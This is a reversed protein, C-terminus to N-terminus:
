KIFIVLQKNILYRLQETLKNKLLAKDGIEFEKILQKLLSSFKTEKLLYKLIIGCFKTPHYEEVRDNGAWLVAQYEAPGSDTNEFWIAQESESWDWETKRIHVHGSLQFKLKEFDATPIENLMLLQDKFFSRKQERYINYDPTIEMMVKQFEFQFIDSLRDKLNEPVAKVVQELYKSLSIIDNSREGYWLDGLGVQAHELLSLTRRYFKGYIRQKIENIQLGQKKYPRSPATILPLLISDTQDNLLQLYMYGIGATGLLLSPDDKDTFWASAYKGINDKHELSKEALFYAHVKLEPRNFTKAGTLFLEMWSGAGTSITFNSFEAKGYIDDQTLKLCQKAKDLLYNKELQRGANLRVLGMGTIGHAWANVDRKHKLYFSLNKGPKENVGSHEPYLRMDIWSHLYESYYEDEFYLAKEAIWILGPIQLSNAIEIFVHAIGSAGHTVGTLSDIANSFYGWKLGTRSIRAKDILRSLLLDVMDGTETSGSYLHLYSIVFLNGANGSLFDDITVKDIIGDKIDYFLDEASKLHESKGSIEFLKIFAYIVGTAGTYFTYYKVSSSQVYAKCWSLSEEAAKLYKEDKSYQYLSIFFLSIGAVGNYIEENVQQYAEGYPERDLTHWYIGNENRQSRHLLENAIRIVERHLQQKLEM